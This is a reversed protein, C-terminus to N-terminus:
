TITIAYTITFANKGSTTTGPTFATYTKGNKKGTSTSHLTTNLYRAGQPDLTLNSASFTETGTNNSTALSGAIDAIWIPTTTGEPTGTIVGDFYDLQLSTFHVAKGTIGDILTLRGGLSVNGTFNTDSGNGGTVTFTFADYGGTDSSTAPNEPLLYIGWKALHSLFKTNFTITATGTGDSPDALASGASTFAIAAAAAVGASLAALRTWRGFSHPV